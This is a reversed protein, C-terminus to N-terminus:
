MALNQMYAVVYTCNCLNFIYILLRKEKAVGQDRNTSVVLFGVGSWPM